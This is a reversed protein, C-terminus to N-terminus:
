LCFVNKCFLSLCIVENQLHRGRVENSLKESFVSDREFDM